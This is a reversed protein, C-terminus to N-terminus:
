SSIEGVDGAWSGVYRYATAVVFFCGGGVFGFDTLRFCTAPAGDDVFVTQRTFGTLGNRSLSTEELLRWDDVAPSPLFCKFDTCSTGASNSSKLTSWTASHMSSSWRGLRACAKLDCSTSPLSSTLMTLSCTSMVSKLQRSNSALFTTWNTLFPHRGFSHCGVRCTKGAQVVCSYKRLLKKRYLYVLARSVCGNETKGLKKYHDPFKMVIDWVSWFNDRHASPLLQLNVDTYECVVNCITTSILSLCNNFRYRDNDLARRVHNFLVSIFCQFQNLRMLM